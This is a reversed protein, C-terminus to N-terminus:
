TEHARLHTYSVSEKGTGSEGWVLVSNNTRAIKEVIQFLRLMQTNGTIIDKFAHQHELSDLSVVEGLVQQKIALHDLAKQMVGLLHDRDVPKTLYDFAGLKMASVALEVDEVGTLVIAPLAIKEKGLFRLIDIGTVEPMDMDLLLIDYPQSRIIECAQESDELTTVQFRGEQMLVINLYNLIAQDDDIVLVRKM